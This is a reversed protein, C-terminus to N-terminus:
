KENFKMKAILRSFMVCELQHHTRSSTDSVMCISGLFHRRDRLNHLVFNNKTEISFLKQRDIYKKCWSDQKKTSKVRKVEEEGRLFLKDSKDQLKSWRLDLKVCLSAPKRQEIRHLSHSIFNGAKNYGDALIM